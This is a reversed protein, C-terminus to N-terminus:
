PSRRPLNKCTAYHCMFLRRGQRSEGERLVEAQKKDNIFVNGTADPVADIPMNKGNVTKVWVILRGCHKCKAM